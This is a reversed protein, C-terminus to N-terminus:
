VDRRGAPPGQPDSAHFWSWVRRLSAFFCGSNAAGGAGATVGHDVEAPRRPTNWFPM